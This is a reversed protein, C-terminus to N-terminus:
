LEVACNKYHNYLFDSSNRMIAPRDAGILIGEPIKIKGQGLRKNSYLELILELQFSQINKTRGLSGQYM